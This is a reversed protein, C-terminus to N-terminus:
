IHDTDSGRVSLDDHRVIHCHVASPNDRSKPDKIRGSPSNVRLLDSRITRDGYFGKWEAIKGETQPPESLFLEPCCAHISLYWLLKLNVAYYSRGFGINKNVRYNVPVTIVSESQSSPLNVPMMM